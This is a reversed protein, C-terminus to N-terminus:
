IKINQWNHENLRKIRLVEAVAIGLFRKKRELILGRSM